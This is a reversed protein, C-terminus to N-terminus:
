EDDSGGTSGEIGADTTRVNGDSYEHPIPLRDSKPWPETANIEEFNNVSIRDQIEVKVARFKNGYIMSAPLWLVDGREADALELLTGADLESPHTPYDQETDDTSQESM